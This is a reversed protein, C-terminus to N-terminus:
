KILVKTTQQDNASQTEILYVGGVSVNFTAETGCDSLSQVVAGGTTLIRVSKLESVSRVTVQRNRVSVVIGDSASVDSIATLDSRTTLFYRGYDNPQVSVTGGDSVEKVSGTVADLVYLTSWQVHSMSCQVDVPESDSACTVGFPVVDLSPRSDISVARSGAVTYVMPVDALNSDFLTEVDEGSVYDDSAVDSIDVSAKSSGCDNVASITLATQRAGSNNSPAPPPFNGDVQMSRNFTIIEASGKKVFFGQMPRIIDTSVGAPKTHAVAASAEYTWYGTQDLLTNNDFFKKMDISVMYPNGVLVYDDNQQMASIPYELDGDHQHEDTVLRYSYPVTFLTYTSTGDDQMFDFDPKSVSKVGSAAPNSNDDTWDYYDYSVDAKPLRILTKYTQDKKHARISFGTLKNGLTNDLIHYPVQVDNFTHGWEVLNTSVSSFNLNASYLNARIDNQKVYVKGNNLGWSRQYIPYKTRSYGKSKDFSITQFAETEQRGNSYPVYMDGAYTCQLPSVLLYWSNADLETEVWARKYTLRQQRLLEAGPKFYIDHCVNGQFKEVDFVKATLDESGQDDWTGDEKIYRHGFCGEGFRDTDSYSYRVLMDYYINETPKSNTRQEDSTGDPDRPSRDTLLTTQTLDLFGGGQRKSGVGEGTVRPENILSPANNGSPLTVYTFKMPVFGPNSGSVLGSLSGEGNNDYGNPHGKTPTNQQASGSNADKYLESRVSRQWNGDNYWNASHYGTNNTTPNGDDDVNQAYWTVFEPVVKIVIFLDGFCPHEQGVDDEDYYSTSVEYQYGEHFDIACESLDIALYMHERDVYPQGSGGSFPVIKGFKTGVAPLTPDTTNPTTPASEKDVASITIYSDAPFYLKKLIQGKKDKYGNIPIHLKYNQTRMKNLQELGVRLVRKTGATSYDVDDFGLTLQPYGFSGIVTFTFPIYDCLYYTKGAVDYPTEKGKVPIALFYSTETITNELQGSASMILNGADYAEKLIAYYNSADVGQWRYGEAPEGISYETVTIESPPNREFERYARLAQLLTKNGHDSHERNLEYMADAIDIKGDNNADVTIKFYDFLPGTTTLSQDAGNPIVTFGTAEDDDPCNVQIIHDVNAETWNDCNGYITQSNVVLNQDLFRVFTKRPVFFNSFVDCVDNPNAWGITENNPEPENLDKTLAIFYENDQILNLQKDKLLNFYLKGDDPNIYYGRNKVTESTNLSGDSNLVAKYITVQGYSKGGNDYISYDSYPECLTNGNTDKGTKKYIRYYIKQESGTLVMKSELHEVDMYASFTMNEDVCTGDDMNVTVKGTSTYFRIEDVCYDAGATNECYNDIDVKYKKLSGSIGATSPISTYGYTQYWKTYQYGDGDFSTGPARTAISRLSGTLFSVIPKDAKTGDNGVEYVRIMLQPPTAGGNADGNTVDAIAATYFIQSGACLKAEFDLSAITRAEDAADVYLFSGFTNDGYLRTFDYLHENNIGQGEPRWFYYMYPQNADMSQSYDGEISKLMIYDGHIPTLASNGGTSLRYQDIQPYCFGYQADEWILPKETHNENQNNLTTTNFFDDFYVRGGFNYHSDLYAMRRHLVSSGFADLEDVLVAPADILEIEYHIAAHYNSNDRGLSGVIHLKKGASITVNKAAGGSWTTYYDGGLDGITFKDIRNSSNWVLVKYYLHGLEDEYYATWRINNCQIPSSETGVYYDDLSPLDARLHFYSNNDKMSVAVHGNDECLEFLEKKQTSTLNTYPSGDSSSSSQSLCQDLKSKGNNIKNIIEAAPHIRFLYRLSLTPEHLMYPHYLASFGPRTDLNSGRYVGDFYKSVDCAIVHTGSLGATNYTVGVKEHTPKQSTLDRNLAILGRGNGTDFDYFSELWSNALDAISLKDSGLDTEWDYWRIYAAPELVDGAEYYNQFPLKLPHNGSNPELYVDYIVTHVDQRTDGITSPVATSTSNDWDYQQVSSNKILYELDPYAEVAAGKSHVFRFDEEVFFSYNYVMNIDPEHNLTNTNSDYVQGNASSTDDSLWIMVKYDSWHGYNPKTFNMNLWNITQSSTSESSATIPYTPCTQSNWYIGFGDKTKHETGSTVPALYDESNAIMEGKYTVFWRIHLNQALTENTKVYESKIKSLAENLPIQTQGAAVEASTLLIEKSHRFYQSKVTGAFPYTFHYLYLYDWNPEATIDAASSVGSPALRSMDQSIILGVMAGSSALATSSSVTIGQLSSESIGDSYYVWGYNERWTWGKSSLDGFNLLSQNDMTNGAEDAVFLRAYLKGESINLQPLETLLHSTANADGLTIASRIETGTTKLSAVYEDLRQFDLLYQKEWNPETIIADVSSPSAPTMRAFNSSVILSVTADGQYLPNSSSVQINNLANQLGSASGYYIWNQPVNMRKSWDSSPTITLANQDAWAEGTNKDAVFLRAYVNGTPNGYLEIREMTVNQWNAGKIAHLHAFGKEAAMKELDVIYTNGEKTFYKECWTFRPYEILQSAAEDANCQGNDATRNFLIRPTGTSMTIVLKKYNSLDVYANVADDGFPLGVSRGLVYAYTGTSQIGQNPDTWSNYRHMNSTTLPEGFLVMSEVTVDSGSSKIAHLHAFGKDAVMKQLNVTYVNGEKTFYRNVWGDKPYEILHSQSEDENWQGNTEDRNFLIRPTGETVTIVLKSWGSLDAYNIVGPDGYPQGTASNLVYECPADGTQTADAGWSSWSHFMSTTLNTGESSLGTAIAKYKDSLETVNHSYRNEVSVPIEITQINDSLLSAPYTPSNVKWLNYNDADGGPRGRNVICNTSGNQYDVGVYSGSVCSLCFYGALDYGTMDEIFIEKRDDIITSTTYEGNYGLYHVKDTIFYHNTASVKVLYLAQPINTVIAGGDTLNLYMGTNYLELTNVNCFDDNDVTTLLYPTCVSMWGEGSSHGNITFQVEEGDTGVDFSMYFYQWGRGEDNAFTGDAFSAAGSTTIGKGTNDRGEMEIPNLENVKMSITTGLKGRAATLFTYRGQPLHFTITKKHTESDLRSGNWCDFYTSTSTGDWHQGTGQSGYYSSWLSSTKIDPVLFSADVSYVSKITTYDSVHNADIVGSGVLTVEGFMNGTMCLLLLFILIARLASVKQSFIPSTYRFLQKM